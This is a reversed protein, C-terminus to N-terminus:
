ATKSSALSLSQELRVHGNEALEDADSQVARLLAEGSGSWDQGHVGVWANREEKARYMAADAIGLVQEWDLLDPQEKIFPYSAFGISCTTRAVQGSGVSYMTQAVRARIREALVSADEHTTERGVVLFEDGGWRIVVDSDRCANMLADRVQLLMQDGAAHGCSDNVPKFNDLDVMIFVLDNNRDPNKPQGDHHRRILSIDKSIEEFLYRRNRLGTLADTLSADKLKVNAMKLEANRQALQDTRERVESELRRSYETERALKRKQARYFLFITGLVAMVYGLYAWWSLWPPHEVGIDLAFGSENWVGYSNAAKVRFVYDGGSLNTYTARRENGADVWDTDFGELRYAYQNKEPAAFDLAAFEFSVMDDTYDLDVRELIDLPRETPVAQNLKSFGTLVVPPADSALSLEEPDFANFGNSGGFYLRGDRGAFHAGFNYEEGQLGDSVHYSRVEGSQPDYRSIGYNTSLWLQGAADSRVGYIVDNALGQQRGIGIFTGKGAPAPVYRNLGSRTGIWMTGAADRHIAYIANSTLSNGDADSQRYNTWAGSDADLVNVGGSSTGVWIRGESDEGIATANPSSLTGPVDPDHRYNEFSGSAAIFRSVGGGYTGAWLEGSDTVYLSMIGDSALSRDDEPDHRFVTVEGSQTDIRNLGGQMTGAWIRGEGDTAMAMVREDSLRDAIARDLPRTALSRERDFIHIGGGFTGIYIKRDAGAAFATVNRGAPNDTAAASIRHHGLAWSRSNWKSVGGTKTGVWLVGGRDEHLSIVFSDSLSRPDAPDHRYRTFTEHDRELLALGGSTGVWLRRSSDELIVEVRDAPLSAPDGARHRLFVIKGSAEDLRGLGRVATGFWLVGASDRYISLVRNDTAQEAAGAPLAFRQVMGTDPNLRNIGNGTGVWLYGGADLWLSYIRDDSLSAANGPDHRFRTFEGSAVDLRSLGSRMTGAWVWGRPDTLVRRVNNASLSNRDAPDHRWAEFGTADPRRRVLGGGDTVIWLAGEGDVALDTIFDNPLSGELDRDRRYEVIAYGDYRDLGSETAFWIFGTADQVIENVANQSLGDDIGLREFRMPLAESEHAALRSECVLLFSAILLLWRCAAAQRRPATRANAGTRRTQPM